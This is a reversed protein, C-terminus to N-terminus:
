QWDIRMGSSLNSGTMCNYPSGNRYWWQYFRVHGPQVHGVDIISVTSRARGFEDTAAFEIRETPYGACLLGDRFPVAIQSGGQILVATSFTRAQILHIVVDDDAVTTSGTVELRAGLGTENVCGEEEGVVSNNGCPCNILSGDGLCMRTGLTQGPVIRHYRLDYWGCFSGYNGYQGSSVQLYYTRSGGTTNRYIVSELDDNGASADIWDGLHADGCIGSSAADEDYLWMDLNHAEDSFSMDIIATEGDELTFSFYDDDLKNKYLGELEAGGAPLPTATACSDNEEYPDEAEPVLCPDPQLSVNLDYWTCEAHSVNIYIQVTVDQDSHNTWYTRGPHAYNYSDPLNAVSCSSARLYVNLQVWDDVNIYEDYMSEVSLLQKPPVVVSYLDEDTGGTNVFLDDYQGASLFVTSACNVVPGEYPDDVAVACPNPRVDIAIGYQSCQGYHMRVKLPVLHAYPADNQFFLTTEDPSGFTEDRQTGCNSNPTFIALEVSTDPDDHLLDVFIQENAQLLVTFFDEDVESVYLDTHVGPALTMASDCSENNEYADDGIAQCPDPYTSLVMDYGNCYTPPMTTSVQIIFEQDVTTENRWIATDPDLNNGRTLYDPWLPSGCNPLLPDYIRVDINGLSNEDYIEVRLANGGPVVVSYNDYEPPEWSEAQHVWLDEYVGYALPTATACTDNEEFSDDTQCLQQAAMSRGALLVLLPALLIAHKALM